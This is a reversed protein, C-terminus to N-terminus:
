KLKYINTGDSSLVITDERDTRLIKVNFESLYKLVEKSPHGYSNSAACSIIAIKPKVNNLFNKSTSSNSGHHGVKLIQSNLNYNNNIMENESIAEADGTFLFSLDNYTLKLVASYDNLNEYSSSNPAIISCNIKDNLLFNVGKKAEIPTINHKMLSNAMDEFYKSSDSTKPMIFNNVKFKDLVEDMAGIHDEHPHTAIVYDLTEVKCSKLYKILNSSNEDPGADILISKNNFQILSADGQGVDIFHVRLEIEKLSNANSFCGYYLFTTLLFVTIYFYIYIPKFFNKKM